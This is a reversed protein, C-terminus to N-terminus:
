GFAQDKPKLDPAGTKNALKRNDVLYIAEDLVWPRGSEGQDKSSLVSARSSSRNLFDDFMLQKTVWFFLNLCSWSVYGLHWFVSLFCRLAMLEGSLMATTLQARVGDFFGFREPALARFTRLTGCLRGKKTSGHHKPWSTQSEPKCIM